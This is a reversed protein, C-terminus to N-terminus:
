EGPTEEDADSTKPRPHYLMDILFLCARLVIQFARRGTYTRVTGKKVVGHVIHNRYDTLDTLEDQFGEPWDGLRESLIKLKARKENMGPRRGERRITDFTVGMRDLISDYFFDLAIMLMVIAAVDEEERVLQAANQLYNLWLPKEWDGTEGIAVWTVPTPRSPSTRDLSRSFLIFNEESISLPLLVQNDAIWQRASKNGPVLFFVEPPKKYHISFDVILLDDPVSMVRGSTSYGPVLPIAHIPDIFIEIYEKYFNLYGDVYPFVEECAPCPTPQELGECNQEFINECHPCRVTRIPVSTPAQPKIPARLSGEKMRHVPPQEPLPAKAAPEAPKARKKSTAM